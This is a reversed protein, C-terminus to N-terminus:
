TIELGVVTGDKERDIVLQSGDGAIMTESDVPVEKSTAFRIYLSSAADVGMRQRNYEPNQKLWALLDSYQIEAM